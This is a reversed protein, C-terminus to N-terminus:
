EGGPQNRYYRSVREYCVLEGDGDVEVAYSAMLDTSRPVRQLEVVEVTVRWGDPTRSVGSVSEPPQGTLQELHEKAYDVAQPGRIRTPALRRQRPPSGEQEEAECDDGQQSETRGHRPRPTPEGDNDSRRDRSGSRNGTATPRPSDGDAEDEEAKGIRRRERGAIPRAGPEERDELEDRDVDEDDDSSAEADPTGRRKRRAGEDDDPNRRARRDVGRDFSRGRRNRRDDRQDDDGGLGLLKGILNAM